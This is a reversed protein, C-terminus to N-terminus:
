NIIDLKHYFLPDVHGLIMLKRKFVFDSSVIVNCELITFRAQFCLLCVNINSRVTNMRRCLQFLICLKLLHFLKGSTYLTRLYTGRTGSLFFNFLFWAYTTARFLLKRQMSQFTFYFHELSALVCALHVFQCQHQHTNNVFKLRNRSSTEKRPTKTGLCSPPLDICCWCHILSISGM